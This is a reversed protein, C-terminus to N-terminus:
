APAPEPPSTPPPQPPAYTNAVSIAMVILLTLASATAFVGYLNYFYGRWAAEMVYWLEMGILYAPVLASIVYGLVSKQYAARTPPPVEAPEASTDMPWPPMRICLALAGGLFTLPVGIALWLAAIFLYLSPPAAMTSATTTTILANIACFAGFAAGARSLVGTLQSRSHPELTRHPGAYLRCCSRHCGTCPM